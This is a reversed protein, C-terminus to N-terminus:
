VETRKVLTAIYFGDSLYDDPYITLGLEKRDAKLEFATKTKLQEFEPHAKLFASVTQQNESDLITCTSYTLTGGVKLLPAVADLISVQIQHLDLSDQYKKEYKVEPKRRLLGIGSCPADVLIKDFSAKAFEESAKRADLQLARVQAKVHTRLANQEILAVKHKHIDLSTVQGTELQAAIQTTKGGPAACADLVQDDAKLAMSEVALMASEDQVIAQGAKFAETAPIFGTNVQLALPTVSSKTVELKEAELQETLAKATTVKTNVRITQKPAQNVTELISKTKAVGVEKQLQEVLWQPTSTAISLAEIPDTIADLSPLGQRDIAHLIGTVFKRVGAHGKVKAIEITENFIARKPINDLYIQQYLATLLLQKVWSQLKNPRKIFPKLYYELTLKHQIVGYVINTLLHADRKSLENQKITQNLALNSYAGQKEVKELLEVALYRPTKNIKKAM